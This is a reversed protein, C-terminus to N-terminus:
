PYYGKELVAALYRGVTDTKDVVATREIQNLELNNLLADRQYHKGYNGVEEELVLLQVPVM